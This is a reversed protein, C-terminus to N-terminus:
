GFTVRLPDAGLDVEANTSLLVSVEGEQEGEEYESTYSYRYVLGATLYSTARTPDTGDLRPDFSDMPDDEASWRGEGEVEHSSNVGAEFPCGSPAPGTETLCEDLADEVLTAFADAGEETLTPALESSSLVRGPVPVLLAGDGYSLRPNGTEVPYSGPFLTLRDGTVDAGGVRLALRDSRLSSVDLESVVESLRFGGDVETVSFTETVRESGVRYSAEVSGADVVEPVSVDTIPAMARSVSLVQDTLLSTDAPQTAAHSLAAVADGRAVADLYGRVAASATSTPTSPTSPTPVPTPSGGGGGGRGAVLAIGGGVGLLSSVLVAVLTILVRRGWTPTAAAGSGGASSVM